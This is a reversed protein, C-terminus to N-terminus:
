NHAKHLANHTIFLQKSPIKTSM